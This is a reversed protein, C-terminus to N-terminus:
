SKARWYHRPETGLLLARAKERHRALILLCAPVMALGFGWGALVGVAVPLLLTAVLTGAVIYGSAVYGIGWLVGWVPVAVPTVITCAGAATALGKGGRGRLWVPWNHGAVAAAAVLAQLYTSAGSGALAVAVVGKLVDVVLVTWGVWGAGTARFANLAGVAGSETRRIDAGRLWRVLLFATPLSGILYAAAIDLAARIM